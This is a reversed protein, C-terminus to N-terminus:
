APTSEAVVALRFRADAFCSPWNAFVTLPISVSTGGSGNPLVNFTGTAEGVTFDVGQSVLCTPDGVAVIQEGAPVRVRTINVAFPNPNTWFTRLQGSDGPGFTNGAGLDSDQLEISVLQLGSEPSAGKGYGFGPSDPMVLWAGVAVASAALVFGIVAGLV